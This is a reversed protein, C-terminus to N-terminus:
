VAPNAFRNGNTSPPTDRHYGNRSPSPSGHVGNPSPSPLGHIGNPSPPPETETGNPSPDPWDPGPSNLIRECEAAEADERAACEEPTENAMAALQQTMMQTVLPRMMRVIQLHAEPVGAQIVTASEHKMPATEQYVNWEDADMRDPEPAPQPKGITYSLLLKAAQVNGEVARQILAKAVAQLDAPTVSNLLAQRLAAVQRAFPNGPGGPNGPAFRGKADRADASPNANPETSM